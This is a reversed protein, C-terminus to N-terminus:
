AAASLRINSIVKFLQDVVASPFVGDPGLPNNHCLPIMPHVLNRRTSDVTSALGSAISPMLNIRCSDQCTGFMRQDLRDVMYVFYLASTANAAIGCGLAVLPLDKVKLAYKGDYLQFFMVWLAYTGM